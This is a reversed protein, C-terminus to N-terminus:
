GSKSYILQLIKAPNLIYSKEFPSLSFDKNCFNDDFVYQTTDILQPQRACISSTLMACLRKMQPGESIRQWPANNFNVTKSTSDYSHCQNLHDMLDNESVFALMTRKGGKENSSNDVKSCGWVCCFM